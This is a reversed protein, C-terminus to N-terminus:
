VKDDQLQGWFQLYWKSWLFSASHSSRAGGKRFSTGFSFPLSLPGGKREGEKGERENQSDGNHDRQFILPWRAGADVAACADLDREPSAIVPASHVGCDDGISGMPVPHSMNARNM